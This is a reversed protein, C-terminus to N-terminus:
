ASLYREAAAQDLASALYATRDRASLPRLAELDRMVLLCKRTVLEADIV